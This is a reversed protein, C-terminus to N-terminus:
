VDRAGFQQLVIRDALLTDELERAARDKRVQNKCVLDVACRWLCLSRKQLGHLFALDGGSALIEFELLREKYQGSLIGDLLFASVRQGFRLQVSKQEVDQNVIRTPFSWGLVRLQEGQKNSLCVSQWEGGRGLLCMEPLKDALEPLVKTDHNGAVALIHIDAATLRELERRLLGYAEFFDDEHEVLDGAFLVASVDQEIALDVARALAAAPGLAQGREKIAEPLRGPRRGLHMDGICLIRIGM